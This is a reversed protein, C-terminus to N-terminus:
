SETYNKQDEKKEFLVQFSEHISEAKRRKRRTLVWARMSNRECKPVMAGGLSFMSLSLHKVSERRWALFRRRHM